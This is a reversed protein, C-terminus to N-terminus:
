RIKFASSIDELADKQKQSLSGSGAESVMKIVEMVPAFGQTSQLKYLKRALRSVAQDPTGCESVMWRGLVGLEEADQLPVNAVRSVASTLALRQERTPLDDLEVFASGLSALAINPDEIAEVPHINTKRTFGFRRAALRVDNAADLVEGAMDAAGRARIVFFYIAAIAGLAAIIFPM